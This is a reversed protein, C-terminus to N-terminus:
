ECATRGVHSVKLPRGAVEGTRSRIAAEPGVSVVYETPPPVGPTREGFLEEGVVTRPLELFEKAFRFGAIPDLPRFLRAGAPIITRRFRLKKLHIPGSRSQPGSAIRAEGM